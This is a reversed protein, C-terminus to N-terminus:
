LQLHSSFQTTLRTAFRKKEYYFGMNQQFFIGIIILIELIDFYFIHNEVVLTAVRVQGLTPTFGM